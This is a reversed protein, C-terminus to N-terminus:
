GGAVRTVSVGSPAGAWGTTASEFGPNGVLEQAASVTITVAASAVGGAGDSIGYTFTDPGVYGSNPTYVITGGAGVTASGHAPSTAGTVSLTDGDVDSDNALVTISRATGAPTSASDATATPNDNVSTVTITVQGSASAGGPNTVVYTFSDGGHYNAAPVYNIEDSPTVTVTGHAPQTVSDISLAGGGPNSDNALVDITVGNDEQTSAVDDVVTPVNGGNEVTLDVRGTASGGHGDSVTYNFFDGGEYGTTPQYRVTGSPNISASGHAPSTVGTVTLTDGDVDTDNALVNINVAQNTVTTGIDNQALPNDNVPAVTIMVSATASGGSPDTATYSFTDSGYYNTAPAYTITKSPNISVSGHAPQSTISLTLADGEPDLDNGLVDIAVSTDENTTAADDVTVPAGSPRFEFAGRDDFTRPGAGTNTVGPYDHRPTGDLDTTQQGSVGSNASDIAPSAATLHYDDTGENRFAPNAQIGHSEQGSAARLAALSTYITENWFYMPASSSQFVLNYDM